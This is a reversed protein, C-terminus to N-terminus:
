TRRLRVRDVDPTARQDSVSMPSLGLVDEITALMGATDYHTSDVRRTSRTRASSSRPRATPTSTTPRRGARRGRARLHGTSAWYAATRCSTQRARGLALDNDAMYSRPRPRAPTRARPTTTRAPARDRAGPLDARQAVFEIPVRAGVRARPGRPRLLEHELGPLRPDVHDGFRTRRCTPRPRRAPKGDTCDDSRRRSATTASALRRAVYADDWIYGVTAASPRAAARDPRVRAARDPVAARAARVRQRLEPLVGRPTTSPGSRTSTTPPPRRRRGAPPRGALGGRRRLLQRAAHLPARARPPQAGVDDGFLTLAPRRQGQALDGFVQDYTRNEKIVYIVHKIAHSRRRREAAPRADVHNNAAVQATWRALAALRSRTRPLDIVEVSGKIMTGVYQHGLAAATGPARHATAARLRATSGLPAFPGCPNPAAGFGNTNSSWWAGATPRSRWTPRIGPPRSSAACRAADDLDVVRSRTRAPRARRLAHRGDPSVTLGDPM